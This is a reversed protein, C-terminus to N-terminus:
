VEYKLIPKIERFRLHDIHHLIQVSRPKQETCVTLYAIKDELTIKYGCFSFKSVDLKKKPKENMNSDKKENPMIDLLSAIGIGLCKALAEKQTWLIFFCDERDASAFYIKQEDETFFRRILKEHDLSRRVFEIDIGIGGRVNATDSMAAVSLEDSHSINFPPMHLDNFFPKGDSNRRITVSPPLPQRQLLAQLAIMGGLGSRVASPNKMALLREQESDGFPLQRILHETEAKEDPLSKVSFLCISLNM